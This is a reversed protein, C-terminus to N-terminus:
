KKESITQLKPKWHRRRLSGVLLDYERRLQPSDCLRRGSEEAERTVPDKLKIRLGGSATREVDFPHSSRSRFFAAFSVASQFFANPLLFYCEGNRLRYDASLPPTKRGIFFADSRCVMHKPFEEMLDRVRVPRRYTTVAGDSKILRIAAPNNDVHDDDEEEEPSPPPLLHQICSIRHF